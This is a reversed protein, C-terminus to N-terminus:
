RRKVRARTQSSSRLATSGARAMRSTPRTMPGHSPGVRARRLVRRAGLQEARAAYAQTLVSRRPRRPPTPRSARRRGARAGDPTPAAVLREANRWAIERWTPIVQFVGFDDATGPCTPTTSRRTSAARSRPSLPRRHRPQPVRQRPRSRDQPEVGDPKVLGIAPWRSPSTASSTPTSARALLNGQPRDRAHDAAAQFAIAWAPPTGRRAAPTGPTTPTSTSRPRLRRGRPQRVRHGRLLDPGRDHAPVGRDHAPLRARLHRRPRLRRALPDFRRQM